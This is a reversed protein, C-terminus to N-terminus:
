LLIATVILKKNPRLCTTYVAAENAALRGDPYTRLSICFIKYIVIMHIAWHSYPELKSNTYQEPSNVRRWLSKLGSLLKLYVRTSIKVAFIHRRKEIVDCSRLPGKKRPAPWKNFAFISTGLSTQVDFDTFIVLQDWSSKIFTTYQAEFVYCLVQSSHHIYYYM